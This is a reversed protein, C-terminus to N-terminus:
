KLLIELLVTSAEDIYEAKQHSYKNKMINQIYTKVSTWEGKKLEIKKSNMAYKMISYASGILDLKPSIQLLTWALQTVDVDWYLIGNDIYGFPYIETKNPNNKLKEEKENKLEEEIDNKLERVNALLEKKNPLSIFKRIEKNLDILYSIAQKKKLINCAYYEILQWNYGFTALEDSEAQDLGKIYYNLWQSLELPLPKNDVGEIAVIKNYYNTIGEDFHFIIYKKIDLSDVESFARLLVSKVYDYDEPKHICYLAFSEGCISVITNLNDKMKSDSDYEQEYYSFFEKLDILIHKTAKDVLVIEDILDFKVETQYSFNMLERIFIPNTKNQTVASKKEIKSITKDQKSSKIGKKAM